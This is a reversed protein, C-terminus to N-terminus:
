KVIKKYSKMHQKIHKGIVEGAQKPHFHLEKLLDLDYYSSKLQFFQERLTPDELFLESLVDGYFYNLNDGINMELVFKQDEWDLKRNLLQQQKEKSLNLFRNSKLHRDDYLSLCFLDETFWYFSQYENQQAILVDRQYKPDQQYFKLFEKERYRANAEQYISRLDYNAKSSFGRNKEQELDEIHGLEHVISSLYFITNKREEPELLYYRNLPFVLYLAAVTQYTRSDIEKFDILRNEEKLKRLYDKGQQFKQSFYKELLFDGEEQSFSTYRPEQEMEELPEDEIYATILRHIEKEKRFSDIQQKSKQKLLETTKKKMYPNEKELTVIAPYEEGLANAYLIHLKQLYFFIIAKQNTTRAKYYLKILDAIDKKIQDITSMFIGGVM